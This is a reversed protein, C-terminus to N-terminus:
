TCRTSRYTKWLDIGCHQHHWRSASGMIVSSFTSPPPPLLLHIRTDSTITLCGMRGPHYVHKRHNGASPCYKQATYFVQSAAGQICRHRFRGAELRSRVWFTNFIGHTLRSMENDYLNMAASTPRIGGGCRLIPSRISNCAGARIRYGRPM